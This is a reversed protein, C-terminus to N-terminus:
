HAVLAACSRGPGVTAYTSLCIYVPAPHPPSPSPSAPRIDCMREEVDDLAGPPPLAGGRPLSRLRSAGSGACFSWSSAWCPRISSAGRQARCHATTATRRSAASAASARPSSRRARPRPCAVFMVLHARYGYSYLLVRGWGEGTCSSCRRRRGRPLGLSPPSPPPAALMMRPHALRLNAAAASASSTSSLRPLGHHSRQLPPSASRGVTVASPRRCCRSPHRLRKEASM